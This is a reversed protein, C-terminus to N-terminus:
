NGGKQEDAMGRINNRGHISCFRDPIRDTIFVEKVTSPCKGKVALERSSSCIDREVVDDPMRFWTESLHHPIQKMLDAWVPLAAEAGTLGVSEGNDFGIWVLALIEPTYGVFWADRFANTTGTKGAVPFTIGMGKLHRGTGYLVATQLMSNVLFAEAPPICRAVTMYKRKLLKGKEDMVERLSLPYPLIGDAGFACYARALELPFVEFSGLALSPYPKQPTSFHFKDLTKVIRDLGTRMALDVTAINVSQALAWRLSMEKEAVPNYNKPIWVKGGVKYPKPDNSLISTTTLEDLASVYVFPKITSGPQRAAHSIRNFQSEAYNRGGVMALIAGTKPQMVIIGGQLRKESSARKLRPNRNELRELGRTLAEEAAEQVQTDLTTHISLGLSSLSERPYLISVQEYVFDMFYPARKGYKRYGATRIPLSSFQHFDDESLWGEKVMAKLVQNRRVQCLKPDHYPSFRNPAKILGALVASEDITLQEAPKGFYFDAAEGIGNISVSGKQGFYIENLYIELIEEKRYSFELTFAFLLELIKRSFTREPTLFYNKALQQTITSGGQRITGHRINTWLARAVSIPDVGPHHYFRNDEAALVARILHDPIQRISILRRQEREDGFFLMLEEPELELVPISEQTDTRIISEIEKGNFQIRVPGGAEKEGGTNWKNPFMEIGSADIRVEGPTKPGQTTQRYGLNKLKAHFLARNIKQGPYILTTDSFVRSPIRWRRGAFREEIGSSLRWFYLTTLVIGFLFAGGLIFFIIRKKKKKPTGM